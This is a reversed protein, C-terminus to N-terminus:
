STEKLSGDPNLAPRKAAGPVTCNNDILYRRIEASRARGEEIAQDMSAGYADRAVKNLEPNERNTTAKEPPKLTFAKPDTEIFHDKRIRNNKKKRSM